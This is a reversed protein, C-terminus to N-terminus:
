YRSLFLARSVRSTAAGLEGSQYSLCTTKVEWRELWESPCAAGQNARDIGAQLM